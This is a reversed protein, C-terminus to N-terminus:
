AHQAHNCMRTCLRFMIAPHVAAALEQSHFHKLIIAELMRKMSQPSERHFDQRITVADNRECAEALDMLAGVKSEESADIIQVRAEGLLGFLGTELATQAKLHVVVVRMVVLWKALKKLGNLDLMEEVGLPKIGSKETPLWFLNSNNYHSDLYEIMLSGDGTLRTAEWALSHIVHGGHDLDADYTSTWNSHVSDRERDRWAPDVDISSSWKAERPREDTDRPEINGTEFAVSRSERCVRTILPPRGNM